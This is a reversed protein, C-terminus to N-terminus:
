WSARMAVAMLAAICLLTVPEGTLFSANHTMAQPILLGVTTAALSCAIVGDRSEAHTRSLIHFADGGIRALFAVVLGVLVVGHNLAPGLYGNHVGIASSISSMPLPFDYYALWFGSEEWTLREFHLGFPHTLVLLLARKQLELRFIANVLSEDQQVKM